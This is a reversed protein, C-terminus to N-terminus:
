LLFIYNSMNLFLLLYKKIILASENQLTMKKKFLQLKTIIKLYM